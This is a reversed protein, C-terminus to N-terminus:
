GWRIICGAGSLGGGFASMAILDGKRLKGSRALEDFSIPVSASSTNGYREINMYFKELPLKLRRACLDIIRVNAQHPVIWDLDQPTIGAQECLLKIDEELRRVAFKFTEQGNMVVKYPTLEKEYFPSNGKGASISLATDNGQTFLRSALYQEGPAIVFAGSGDGFIVCTSRDTWDLVRSLREAGIVLAYRIGGRAIFAAATDLAFLFGSCASNVDFAPCHAGLAAQVRASLSPCISDSSVTAAIMLDLEEPQIGAADLARRAAKEAMEAASEHMSIRREHIGVRQMIWEDSTEVMKSLDDNTLIKEPVYAGTGLIQISM